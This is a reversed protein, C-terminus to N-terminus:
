EDYFYKDLFMYGFIGGSFPIFILLNKISLLYMKDIM